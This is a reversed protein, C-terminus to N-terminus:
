QTTAARTSGTFSTTHCRGSNVLVPTKDKYRNRQEAKWEETTLTGNLALCTGRTHLANTKNETSENRLQLIAYENTNTLRKRTSNQKLRLIRQEDERADKRLGVVARKASAFVRDGTLTMLATPLLFVMSGLPAVKDHCLRHSCVPAHSKSSSSQRTEVAKTTHWLFKRKDFIKKYSRTRYYWITRVSSDLATLVTKEAALRMKAYGPLITLLIPM